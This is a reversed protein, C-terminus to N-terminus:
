KIRTLSPRPTPTPSRPPGSDDAGAKVVSTLATTPKLDEQRRREGSKNTSAAAMPFTMGQGNERAYIALVRGIPVVIDRAVGGFRGKFEIADNGLQLASTADFSINLVIEGDKVYEHPVRVTEDALVAIFPTFGNDTCWEYLARILYPRTSGVVPTDPM